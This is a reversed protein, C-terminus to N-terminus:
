DLNLALIQFLQNSNRGKLILMYLYTLQQPQIDILNIIKEDTTDRKVKYKQSSLQSMTLLIKYNILRRYNFYLYLFKIYEM